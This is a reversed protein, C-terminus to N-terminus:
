RLRLMLPESFTSPSGSLNLLADGSLHRHFFLNSSRIEDDPSLAYQFDVFLLNTMNMVM